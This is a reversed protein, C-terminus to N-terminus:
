HRTHSDSMCDQAELEERARVTRDKLDMAM